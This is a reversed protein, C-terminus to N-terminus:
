TRSKMYSIVSSMSGFRGVPKWQTKIKERVYFMEDREDFEIKVNLLKRESNTSNEVKHQM